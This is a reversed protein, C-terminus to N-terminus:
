MAVLGSGCGNQPNPNLPSGQGTLISKIQDPTATPDRQLLLAALGTVHPAAFSTGHGIPGNAGGPILSLMGDLPSGGPALIDPGAKGPVPGRSSYDQLIKGSRDTAGVVIIGRANAPSTMTGSSPGQNGASKVLVLGLDWARNCARAERSNPDTAVGIGWSCNAVLAGDELAQQIALTADFDNGQDAPNTAFVKYSAITAEPAIGLLPKKASAIIGAVGTGHPHPHGWSERTFNKRQQVRGALAPHTADVEGDIVAVLIGTGKVGHAARFQVARIVKGTKSVEQTLIRPIGIRAVSPDEAVSALQNPAAMARMSDSLWCVDSRSGRDDASELLSHVAAGLVRELESRVPAILRYFFERSESVRASRQGRHLISTELRGAGELGVLPIPAALPNPANFELVTAQAQGGALKRSGAELRIQLAEVMRDSAKQAFAKGLLGEVKTRAEASASKVFVAPAGRMPAPTKVQRLLNALLSAIEGPTFGSDEPIKDIKERVQPVVRGLAAKFDRMDKKSKLGTKGSFFPLHFVERASSATLKTTAALAIAVERKGDSM